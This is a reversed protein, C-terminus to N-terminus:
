LIVCCVGKEKAKDEETAWIAVYADEYSKM